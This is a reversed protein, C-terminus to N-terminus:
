PKNKKHFEDLLRRIDVEAHRVVQSCVYILLSYPWCDESAAVLGAHVNEAAQLQSKHHQIAASLKGEFVDVSYTRNDYRFSPMQIGRVMLFNVFSNEQSEGKETFDFGLFQPVNPPLILAPKEVLVEGRRVVTDGLNVESESLLIYPLPTDAFTHLAQVRPRIIETHKLAKNWADYNDMNKM